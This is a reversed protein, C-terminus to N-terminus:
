GPAVGGFSGDRLDIRLVLASLAAGAELVNSTLEGACVALTSELARVGLAADAFPAETTTSSPGKSGNRLPISTM